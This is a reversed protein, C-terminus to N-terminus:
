PSSNVALPVRLLQDHGTQTMLRRILLAQTQRMGERPKYLGPDWAPLTGSM